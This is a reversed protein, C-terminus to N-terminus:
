LCSVYILCCTIGTMLMELIIYFNNRMTVENTSFFPAISSFSSSSKFKILFALLNDEKTLTRPHYDPLLSLLFKFNDLSVSTLKLLSSNDLSEFGYFAVGGQFTGVKANKTLVKKNDGEHTVQTSSNQEGINSIFLSLRGQHCSVNGFDTQVEVSLMVPTESVTTSSSTKSHELSEKLVNRNTLRNFRSTSSSTHTSPQAPRITPDFNPM